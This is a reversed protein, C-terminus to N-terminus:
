PRKGLRKDSIELSPADAGSELTERLVFGVRAEIQRGSFVEAVYGIAEDVSNFKSLRYLDQIDDIFGRKELEDSLATLHSIIDDRTFVM